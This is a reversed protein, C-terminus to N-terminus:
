VGAGGDAKLGPPNCYAGNVRLWEFPNEASQPDGETPCVCVSGDYVLLQLGADAVKALARRLSMAAKDQKITMSM